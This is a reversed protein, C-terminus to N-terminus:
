VKTLGDIRCDHLKNSLVLVPHILNNTTLMTKCKKEKLSEVFINLVFVVTKCLIIAKV